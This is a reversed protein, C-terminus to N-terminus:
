NKKKLQWHKPYLVHMCGWYLGRSEVPFGIFPIDKDEDFYDCESLMPITQDLNLSKPDGWQEIDGKSQLWLFYWQQFWEDGLCHVTKRQMIPQIMGHVFYETSNCKPYCHSENCYVSFKKNIFELYVKEHEPLYIQGDMTCVTDNSSWIDCEKNINWKKIYEPIPMEDAKTYFCGLLMLLFIIRM